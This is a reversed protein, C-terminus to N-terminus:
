PVEFDFGLYIKEPRGASHVNLVEPRAFGNETILVSQSGTFRLEDFDLRGKEGGEIAWDIRNGEAKIEVVRGSLYAESSLRRALARATAREQQLQGRGMLSRVDPAVLGSVLGIITIVILLELM